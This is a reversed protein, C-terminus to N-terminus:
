QGDLWQDYADENAKEVAEKPTMGVEFEWGWDKVFSLNNVTLGEESGDEQEYILRKCEKKWEEFRKENEGTM